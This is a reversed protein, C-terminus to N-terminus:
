FLIRKLAIEPTEAQDRILENFHYTHIFDKLPQQKIAMINGQHYSGFCGGETANVYIGPVKQVMLDFWAKFNAYSQWTLAKNGFVDVMRTVYGLNKDYKSDWAHFKKDYSFSFDAGVFCIPNAGLWAKAFYMCAGLVNGGTSMWVNFPEVNAMESMITDEPIPCHYFFIEGKWKKLLNPSSGTFAILKRDKTLEWYEDPTRKGGESVEEITVEGSDLTVYYDPHAGNDEMFHFNHLCSVLPIDGRDQLLNGNYKLSPGSGALIAPRYKGKNFLSGVSKEKFPGFLKHNEKINNIWIDKWMQVTTGDNSCAQYWLEQPSVPASEIYNQYELEVEIKRGM